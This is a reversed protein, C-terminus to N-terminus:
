QRIEKLPAEASGALYENLNLPLHDTDFRMPVDFEFDATVVEASGVPSDFTIIGTATDIAWGTEQVASDIYVEVTGAVPKTIKRDFTRSGSVYQKMLQFHTADIEACEQRVATYDSYSKFRFGIARGARAYFFTQLAQLQELTKVGYAVNWRELPYQWNQNRQEHGGGLVIVDTSFEPGGNSGYSIDVPFRVEDFSDSM